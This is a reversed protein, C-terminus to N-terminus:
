VFDDETEENEGRKRCIFLLWNHFETKPLLSHKAIAGQWITNFTEEGSVGIFRFDSANDDVGYIDVSM